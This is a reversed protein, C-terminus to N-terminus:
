LIDLDISNGICCEIIAKIVELRRYENNKIMVQTVKSEKKYDLAITDIRDSIIDIKDQLIVVLEESSIEVSTKLPRGAM